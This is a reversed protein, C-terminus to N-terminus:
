RTFILAQNDSGKVKARFSDDPRTPRLAEIEAKLNDDLVVINMGSLEKGSSELAAFRGSLDPDVIALLSGSNRLVHLLVEGELNHNILTPACGIAWLAVWLFLFEPCNQHYLAVWQGPKVGLTLFWQAYRCTHHYM